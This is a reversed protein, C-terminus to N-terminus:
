TKLLPRINIDTVEASRPMSLANIAASAIDEPQLLLQPKYEKGEIECVTEQMPTATRGPYVSLVRIGEINLENRFSDAIAKLASKTAAYQGNNVGAKLGVSSNIFVIQGEGSRLMPLLTQTLLFPARVNTKYQWDFDKVSSFELKGISIVGACHILLDIKRFDMKLKKQLKEIDEDKTLDICYCKVLPSDKRAMEAVVELKELNRGLLCLQVGQKALGLAISKGIGSNSGTIVAIQDELSSM